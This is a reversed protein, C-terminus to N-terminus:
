LFTYHCLSLCMVNVFTRSTFLFYTYWFAFATNFDATWKDLLALYLSKKHKSINCDVFSFHFEFVVIHVLRVITTKTATQFFTVSLTTLQCQGVVHCKENDQEGPKVFWLSYGTLNAANRVRKFVAHEEQTLMDEIAKILEAQTGAKVLESSQKHMKNVQMSGRNIVKTRIIVEYVSDGIYALVLPSYSNEDVPELRMCQRYYTLFEQITVSEEM